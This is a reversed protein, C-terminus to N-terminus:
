LEDELNFPESWWVKCESTLLGAVGILLDYPQRYVKSPEAEAIRKLRDQVDILMAPGYNRGAQSARLNSDDCETLVVNEIQSCFSKGHNPRTALDLLEQEATISRRNMSEYRASLGGRVMKKRLTNQRLIHEGLKLTALEPLFRFAPERADRVALIVDQPTIRKAMLYPDENYKYTIGVWDRSPDDSFLSSAQAIMFILADRVKSLASSGMSVCEALSSIHRQALEDEFARDTPGLVVDMRSLVSFLATSEVGLDDRLVEFGKLADGTLDKWETAKQIGALLKSPSLHVRKIASSNSVETNSVFLFKKIKDPYKLDLELFRSVSKQLAEDNLEWVGLEPKRTKVQYADFFGSATEALFDEHQECWLASYPLKGTTIGVSLVVGYAHQYHFKRLVEDGPDLKDRKDIPSNMQSRQSISICTIISVGRVVVGCCDADQSIGM